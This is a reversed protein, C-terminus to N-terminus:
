PLGVMVLVDRSEYSHSLGLGIEHISAVSNNSSCIDMGSNEMLRFIDSMLKSQQRCAGEEHVTEDVTEEPLSLKLMPLSPSEALQVLQPRKCLISELRTSVRKSAKTSREQLKGRPLADFDILNRAVKQPLMLTKPCFTTNRTVPAMLAEQPNRKAVEKPLLLPRLGTNAPRYMKTDDGLVQNLVEEKLATPSSPDIFEGSARHPSNYPTPAHPPLALFPSTPSSAITAPLPPVLLSDSHENIEILVPDNDITIPPIVTFSPLPGLEIPTVFIANDSLSDLRKAFSNEGLIDQNFQPLPSCPRSLLLGLHPSGPRSGALLGVNFKSPTLSSADLLSQSTVM